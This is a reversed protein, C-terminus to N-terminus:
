ASKTTALYAAATAAVFFMILGGLGTPNASPKPGELNQFFQDSDLALQQYSRKVADTGCEVCYVMKTEPHPTFVARWFAEGDDRGAAELIRGHTKSKFLRVFKRAGTEHSNYAAFRGPKPGGALFDKRVRKERDNLRDSPILSDAWRPVWFDERGVAIRNGWNHQIIARGNANEHRALALLWRAEPRTPERGMEQAFAEVLIVAMQAPTLPTAKLPKQM